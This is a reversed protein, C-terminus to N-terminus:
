QNPLNKLMRFCMAACQILEEEVEKISAGEDAYRLVARSVEGAEESLILANKIINNGEWSHLSEARSLEAKVLNLHKM